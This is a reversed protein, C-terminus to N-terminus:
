LHFAELCYPCIIPYYGDEDRKKANDFAWAIISNDYRRGRDGDDGPPDIIKFLRDFFGM